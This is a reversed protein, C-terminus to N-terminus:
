SFRRMSHDYGIAAIAKPINDAFEPDQPLFSIQYHHLIASLYGTSIQYQFSTMNHDSPSNLKALNGYLVSLAALFGTDYLLLIWISPIYHYTQHIDSSDVKPNVIQVIAFLLMM